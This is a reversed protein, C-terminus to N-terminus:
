KFFGRRNWIRTVIRVMLKDLMNNLGRKTKEKDVQAYWNQRRDKIPARRNWLESEYICSVLHKVCIVRMLVWLYLRMLKLELILFVLEFWLSALMIVYVSPIVCRECMCEGVLENHLPMKRGKIGLMIWSGKAQYKLGIMFWTSWGGKPWDLKRDSERNWNWQRDSMTKKQIKLSQPPKRHFLLFNSARPISGRAEVISFDREVM